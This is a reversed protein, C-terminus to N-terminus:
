PIQYQLWSVKRLLLTKSGTLWFYYGNGRLNIRKREQLFPFFFQIEWKSKRSNIQRQNASISWEVIVYHLIFNCVYSFIHGWWLHYYLFSMYHVPYLKQTQMTDSDHKNKANINDARKPAATDHKYSMTKMFRQQKHILHVKIKTITLFGNNM